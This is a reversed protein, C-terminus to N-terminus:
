NLTLELNIQTSLSSSVRPNVRLKAEYYWATILLSYLTMDLLAIILRYYNNNQIAASCFKKLM